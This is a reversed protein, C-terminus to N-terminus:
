GPMVALQDSFGRDRQFKREGKGKVVASISEVKRSIKGFDDKDPWAAL